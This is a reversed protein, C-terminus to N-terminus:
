GWWTTVFALAGGALMALGLTTTHVSLLVTRARAAVRTRVSSTPCRHAGRPRIARQPRTSALLDAMRGAQHPVSPVSM